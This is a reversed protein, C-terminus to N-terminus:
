TRFINGSFPCPPLDRFNPHHRFLKGNLQFLASDVAGESRLEAQSSRTTQTWSTAPEFGTAGVMKRRWFIESLEARCNRRATEFLQPMAFFILRM